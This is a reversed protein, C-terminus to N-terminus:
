LKSINNSYNFKESKNTIKDRPKYNVLTFNLKCPSSTLLPSMMTHFVVVAEDEVSNNEYQFLFM